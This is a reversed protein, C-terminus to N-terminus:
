LYYHCLERNTNILFYVTERSNLKFIKALGPIHNECLKKNTYLISSMFSPSKMGLKNVIYRHSFYSSGEKEQKLADKLYSRYDIYQFINISKTKDM